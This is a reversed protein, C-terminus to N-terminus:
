GLVAPTGTADDVRNGLRAGVLNVSAGEIKVAVASEVGPVKEIRQIDRRKAAVLEAAGHAPRDFFILSKEEGIIFAQVLYLTQGDGIIREGWIGMIAEKTGVRSASRSCLDLDIRFNLGEQREEGEWGSRDASIGPLKQEVRSPEAM